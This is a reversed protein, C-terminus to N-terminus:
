ISAWKDNLKILVDQVLDEALADDACIARATGLMAPLRRTAYQEFSM